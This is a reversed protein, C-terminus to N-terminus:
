CDFAHRNRQVMELLIKNFMKILGAAHLCQLFFSPHFLLCSLSLLLPPFSYLSSFSSICIESLETKWPSIMVKKQM